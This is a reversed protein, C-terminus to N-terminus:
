PQSSFDFDSFDAAHEDDMTPTWAPSPMNLVYADEDGVNQIAAPLGAPVIISLYEHQDGSFYEKYGETTKVVFRVSGKICTFCGTRIFHLHPGKVTGPSVVTLYVQQPEKGPECFGELVNYIPVLFGNDGGRADSTAIRPNLKTKIMQDTLNRREPYLRFHLPTIDTRGVTPDDCLNHLISPLSPLFGVGSDRRDFERSWGVSSRWGTIPYSKHGVTSFSLFIKRGLM